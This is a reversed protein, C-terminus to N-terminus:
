RSPPLSRVCRPWDLAPLQLLMDPSTLGRIQQPVEERAAQEWNVYPQGVGGPLAGAAVSLPSRFKGPIAAIEEPILPKDLKGGVVPAASPTMFEEIQRVLMRRQHDEWDEGSAERLGPLDRQVEIDEASVEPQEPPAGEAGEAALPPRVVGQSRELAAAVLEQITPRRFKKAQEDLQAETPFQEPPIESEVSVIDDLTTVGGREVGQIDELRAIAM